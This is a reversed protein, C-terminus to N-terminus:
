VTSLYITIVEKKPMVATPKFFNLETQKDFNLSNTLTWNEEFVCFSIFILLKVVVTLHSVPM